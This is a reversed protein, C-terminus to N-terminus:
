PLAGRSYDLEREAVGRSLRGLPVQADRLVESVRGAIVDADPDM